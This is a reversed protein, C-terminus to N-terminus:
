LFLSIGFLKTNPSLKETETQRNFNSPLLSPSFSLLITKAGNIETALRNKGKSKGSKETWSIIMAVSEEKQEASVVEKVNRLPLETGQIM